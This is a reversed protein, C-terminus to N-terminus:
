VSKIKKHIYLVVEMLDETKINDLMDNHGIGQLWVPEFTKNKRANALDYGHSVPIVKDLTGHFIKIPCDM